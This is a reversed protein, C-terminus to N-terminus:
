EKGEPNLNALEKLKEWLSAHLGITGRQLTEQHAADARAGPLRGGTHAISEALSNMQAAFEQIGVNFLNPSIALFLFGLDYEDNVAQGMKAGVLAGCLVEVMLSLAFGKAGGFAAVAFAQAPDTTIQGQRDLFGKDELPRNEQRALLTESWVANSTAFDIVLPPLPPRPASFCIPNAGILPAPPQADPPTICRGGTNMILGIYGADTILRGYPALAGYRGANTMAVLGMGHKEAKNLALDICFRAALPGLMRQGDVAAAMAQEFTIRPKGQQQTIAAPLSLMKLVGHTRIGRMEADLYDEAVLTAEAASLGHATGIAIMTQKLLALPIIAEDDGQPQSTPNPLPQLPSNSLWV